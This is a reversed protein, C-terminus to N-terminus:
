VLRTNIFEDVEILWDIAIEPPLINLTLERGQESETVTITRWSLPLHKLDDKKLDLKFNHNLSNRFIRFLHFWPQEKLISVQNTLRCYERTLDLAETISTRMLAFYLQDVSHTLKARDELLSFTPQFVIPSKSDVIERFASALNTGRSLVRFVNAIRLNNAHVELIGTLEQKSLM